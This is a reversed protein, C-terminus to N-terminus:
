RWDAARVARDRLELRRGALCHFCLAFPLSVATFVCVFPPFLLSFVLLLLSFVFLPLAFATPVRPFPLAFAAPVRPFPLAFAAPVRPFAGAARRLPEWCDGGALRLSALRLQDRGM